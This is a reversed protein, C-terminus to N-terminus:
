NCQEFYWFLPHHEKLLARVEPLVDGSMEKSAKWMCPESTVSQWFWPSLFPHEHKGRVVHIPHLDGLGAALVGFSSGATIVTHKCKSLILVDIFASLDSGPNAGVAQFTNVTAKTENTWWVSKGPLLRAMQEFIDTDAAIFINGPHEQAVAQVVAAYQEPVLYPSAHDPPTPKRSRLQLGVTCSNALKDYAQTAEILRASSRFLFRAVTHFVNGAPFQQKLASQLTPNIQLLPTDYDNTSYIAMTSNTECWQTGGTALRNTAVTCQSAKNYFHSYKRWDADLSLEMYESFAPDHQLMLVRGSYAAMLLGTIAGLFLPLTHFLPALAWNCNNCAVKYSFMAVVHCAAVCHISATM